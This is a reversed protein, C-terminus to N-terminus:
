EGAVLRLNRAFRWEGDRYAMTYRYSPSAAAGTQTAAWGTCADRASCTFSHLTIVSAPTGHEQDLWAGERQTCRVLPALSPHREMLLAELEAPLAEESRGDLVSLCAIPADGGAEAFHRGLAHDLLALMPQGQEQVLVPLPEPLDHAPGEQARTCSALAMAGVLVWPARKGRM